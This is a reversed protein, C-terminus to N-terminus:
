LMVADVVSQQKKKLLVELENREKVKVDEAFEQGWRRAIVM